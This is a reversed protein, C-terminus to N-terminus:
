YWRSRPGPVGRLSVLGGQEVQPVASPVLEWKMFRPPGNLIFPTRRKSAIKRPYPVFVVDQLSHREWGLKDSIWPSRFTQRTHEIRPFMPSKCFFPQFIIVHIWTGPVRVMNFTMFRQLQERFSKLAYIIAQREEQLISCKMFRSTWGLQALALWGRALSRLM